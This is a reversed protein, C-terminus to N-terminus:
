ENNIIMRLCYIAEELISIQYYYDGDDKITNLVNTVDIELQDPIHQKFEYLM